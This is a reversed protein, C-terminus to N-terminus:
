KKMSELYAKYGERQLKEDDEGMQWTGQGLKSMSSGDPLLIRNKATVLNM